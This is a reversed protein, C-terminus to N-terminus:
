GRSLELCVLGVKLSLISGYLAPVLRPHKAAVDSARVSALVEKDVPFEGVYAVSTDRVAPLSSPIHAIMIPAEASAASDPTARGNSEETGAVAAAPAAAPSALDGRIYRHILPISLRFGYMANSCRYM